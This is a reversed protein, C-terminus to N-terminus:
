DYISAFLSISGVDVMSDDGESLEILLPVLQQLYTSDSSPEEVVSVEVKVATGALTGSAEPSPPLAVHRSPSAEHRSPSAGYESRSVGHRSRYTEYRSYRMSLRPKPM